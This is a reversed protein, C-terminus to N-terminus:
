IIGREDIGPVLMFVATVKPLAGREYEITIRPSIAITEYVSPDPLDLLYEQQLLTYLHVIADSLEQEKEEETM